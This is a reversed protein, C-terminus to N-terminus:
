EQIDPSTRDEAIAELALELTLYPGHEIVEGPRNRYTRGWAVSDDRWDLRLEIDNAAARRIEEEIPGAPPRWFTPLSRVQAVRYRIRRLLVTIAGAATANGSALVAHRPNGQPETLFLAPVDRSWEEQVTDRWSAQETLERYSGTEGHENALPRDAVEEVPIWRVARLQSLLSRDRRICGVLRRGERELCLWQRYGPEGGVSELFRRNAEVIDFSIHRGKRIHDALSVPFCNAIESPREAIRGLAARNHRPAGNMLTATYDVTWTRGDGSTSAIRCLPRMASNRRTM